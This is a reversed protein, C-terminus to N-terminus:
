VYGLAELQEATETVEKDASYPAQPPNRDPALGDVKSAVDTVEAVGAIAEPDDSAIVAHETHSGDQLGHDSVCLLTDDGDLQARLADTWRAAQRYHDQCWGDSVTPAVHGVTDLYGLWVWVLDPDHRLSAHVAGLKEAADAALRQDLTRLPV